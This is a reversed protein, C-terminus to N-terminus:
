SNVAGQYARGKWVVGRGSKCRWWSSLGVFILIAEAVPHLLIAWLPHGFRVALLLRMLLVALAAAAVPWVPWAFLLIMPALLVSAHLLLFSWFSSERRFAPFFNKQFGRFIRALSDYMRVSVVTAGDLCLGREGKERWLRALRQDEFIEGRVATHGGVKFYIEREALICAGHALGLSPDNRRTSLPAPFLTFVVFNLMPMLMKEWFSEMKLAPWASLMSVGRARAQAIMSAAANNELRADADLFLLWRGRAETALRHCAFNKGCWGEPLERPAIRRVRADLAGYDSIIRATLDTSHDDYVLIEAVTRDQSIVSKLCDAINAEENRAPILVSVEEEFTNGGTEVRPWAAVNWAVVALMFLAPAFLLILAATELSIM